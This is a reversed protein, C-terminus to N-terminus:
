PAPAEDPAPAPGTKRTDGSGTGPGIRPGTRRWTWHFVLAGLLGHVGLFTAQGALVLWGYLATVEEGRWQAGNALGDTGSRWWLLLVPMAALLYGAIALTKASAANFKRLLLFTPVGFVVVAITAVLLVSFVFQVFGNWPTPSLLFESLMLLTAIFPQVLIAALSALLLRM